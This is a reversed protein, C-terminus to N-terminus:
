KDDVCTQTPINCHQDEPCDGDGFCPTHGEVALFPEHQVSVELQVCGLPTNVHEVSRRYVYAAPFGSVGASVLTDVMSVPITLSGTDEVTCYLTAPTAGHQDVALTIYMDGEDEKSPIWTIEFPKGEVLTWLPPKPDWTQGPLEVAAVGEGHLQFPEMKASGSTTATIADGPAFLPPKADGDWYYGSQPEMTHTVTTGTIVITGVEIVEPYPVCKGELNCTFGSECTPDCFPNEKRMMTCGGDTEVVTLTENPYASDEITAAVLALGQSTHSVEIFGIETGNDCAGPLTPPYQIASSDDPPTSDDSPTGGNTDDAKDSCALVLLLLTMVM